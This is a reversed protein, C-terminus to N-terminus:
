ILKPFYNSKKHPCNGTLESRKNLARKRDASAIALRELNCTLCLMQKGGGSRSGIKDIISWKIDFPENKDKLSWVYKSLKTSNRHKEHRFSSKHVTFRQKFSNGSSGIYEKTELNSSVVAKYIINEQRCNDGGLPFNDKKRFNCFTKVAPDQNM